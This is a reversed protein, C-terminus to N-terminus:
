RKDEDDEYQDLWPTKAIKITEELNKDWSENM